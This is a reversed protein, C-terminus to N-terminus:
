VDKFTVKHTLVFDDALTAAKYLTDVKQENVYTALAVPVCSKFEEILILQRVQERSEAKQSVCWRDFLIEKERAFEVYTQNSLKTYQRFRQRYAEPVLEYAKLIAAKVITYDASDEISLSAYVEQAKGTIVCQLLLSWVNEPWKLSAAVREFHCFYKEVDKECFPPVMRRNRGVDFDDSAAHAAKSSMELEMRKLAFQHDLERKRLELKANELELEKEKVALERLRIANESVSPDAVEEVVSVNELPMQLVGLEVLCGKLVNRLTEKLTKYRPAIEVKYSEAIQLLQEKTYSLLLEESPSERFIDVVSTM